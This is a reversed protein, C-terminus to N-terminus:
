VFESSCKLVQRYLGWATEGCHDCYEPKNHPIKAAKFDHGQGLKDDGNEAYSTEFPDNYKPSANLNIEVPTISYALGKGKSGKKKKPRSIRLTDRIKSALSSEDRPDIPKDSSKTGGNQQSSTQTQGQTDHPSSSVPSATRGTSLSSKKGHQSSGRNPSGSRGGSSSRGPSASRTTTRGNQVVELNTPRSGRGSARRQLSSPSSQGTLRSSRVSVSSSRTGLSPSSKSQKKKTSGPINETSGGNATASLTSEMSSGDIFCWDEDGVSKLETDQNAARKDKDRDQHSGGSTGQHVPSSLISSLRDKWSAPNTSTHSKRNSSAMRTQVSWSILRPSM